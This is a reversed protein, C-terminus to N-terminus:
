SRRSRPARRRTPRTRTCWSGRRRRSRTRRRRGRRQDPRLHSGPERDARRARGLGVRQDARRVQRDANKISAFTLEGANADSYDVYGIAGDTTKVLQAVGANGTGAQTSSPWQVTSGTGLTWVTPAAKVLFSTFNQTTGSGESRHVVTIAPARSAQGEPQRGQDRRRGVQHDAGLLDQRDHGGVAQAEECGRPQVVGHDTRGRDPLLPVRRGTRHRGRVARRHRRLRGGQELLRHAGPGLGRGPLQDIVAKQQQKFDGIAVHNFGLQFTSGDGNLSASALKTSSSSRRTAPGAGAALGAARARRPPARVRPHVFTADPHDRRTWTDDRPPHYPHSTALCHGRQPAFTFLPCVTPVAGRATVARRRHHARSRFEVEIRLEPVQREADNAERRERRARDGGAGIGQM